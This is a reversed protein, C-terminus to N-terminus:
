SFGLKESCFDKVANGKLAKFVLNKLGSRPAIRFGLDYRLAPGPGSRAL